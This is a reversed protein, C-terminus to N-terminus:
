VSLVRIYYMSKPGADEVIDPTSRTCELCYLTGVFYRFSSWSYKREIDSIETPTSNFCYTRPIETSQAITKSATADKVSAAACNRPYVPCTSAGFLPSRFQASNTNEDILFPDFDMETEMGGVQRRGSCDFLDGERCRFGQFWKVILVNRWLRHVTLM